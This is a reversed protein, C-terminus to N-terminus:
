ARKLEAIFEEVQGRLLDSRSALDGSKRTMVSASNSADKVSGAVDTITVAITAAGDSAQGINRAIEATAAEQEEVAASIGTAVESISVVTAAIQQISHAVEGTASQIAGIQSTIEETAKATQSALNKVENAVVAFGRGAEGARAAEITANLALLNTQAAIDNILKIVAGIENAVESLNRVSETTRHADDAAQKTMQTSRTAQRGIEQVSAALEEAATAVTQVNASTQEASAAITASQGEAQNIVLVMVQAAEGADRTSEAVAQLNETAKADFAVCLEMLRAARREKEQQEAAQEQALAEAKIATEKFVQVTAAMAGIEDRRERAPVDVVRDGGALAVMAKTLASLPNVISRAQWVAFAVVVLILAATAGLSKVVFSWRAADLEARSSVLAVQVVRGDVDGLHAYTVDFSEGRSQVQESKAGKAKAEAVFQQSPLFHEGNKITTANLKGDVVFLVEAGVQSRIDEATKDRLYSGVKVTGITKGDLTLPAVADQGVENSSASYSMGQAPHGALASRVLANKGKDDGFRTPNHGRMAIVGKDDTVEIASATPDLANIGKFEAVLLRQLEARDGSALSRVLGENRSLIDAYSQLRESEDNLARTANKISLERQQARGDEVISNLMALSILASVVGVVVVIASAGGVLKVRVSSM